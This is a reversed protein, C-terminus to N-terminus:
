KLVGKIKYIILTLVISFIIIYIINIKFVLYLILYFIFLIINIATNEKIVIQFLSIGASIILAAVVAQMATLVNFFLSNKILTDYFLSILGIIIFPPLITAIMTILSGKFGAIKKGIMIAANIAFVGPCSQSIAIIDLMEKENVWGLEDVFKNKMLPVM